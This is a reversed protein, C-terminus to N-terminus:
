VRKHGGWGIENEREAWENMVDTINMVELEKKKEKVDWFDFYVEEILNEEIVQTTDSRGMLRKALDTYLKYPAPRGTGKVEHYKKWNMVVRTLIEGKKSRWIVMKMSEGHYDGFGAYIQKMVESRSLGWGKRVNLGYAINGLILCATFRSVRKISVVKKM